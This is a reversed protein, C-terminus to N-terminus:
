GEGNHPTTFLLFSLNLPSDFQDAQIEAKGTNLTSICGRRDENVDYEGAVILKGYM